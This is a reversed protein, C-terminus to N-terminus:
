FQPKTNSRKMKPDRMPSTTKKRSSPKLVSKPYRSIVMKVTDQIHEGLYYINEDDMYLAHLQTIENM